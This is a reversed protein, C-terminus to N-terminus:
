IDDEGICFLDLMWCADDLATSYLNALALRALSRVIPRRQDALRADFGQEQTIMFFAKLTFSVVFRL